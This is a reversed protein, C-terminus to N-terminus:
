PTRGPPPQMSKNTMAIAMASLLFVVQIITQRMLVQETCNAANILTKLRHHSSIGIIVRILLNSIMVVGILAM